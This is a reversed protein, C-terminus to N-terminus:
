KAFEYRLQQITGRWYPSRRDPLLWAVEGSMPVRMGDRQQYDSVRCEWPTMIVARGVTRGRADARVSDILGADNFTFLLTLRLPGDSFTAHASREDVAEWRVGQSPLLATPYWVAEAFYRMLEGHAIDGGGRLEPLSFAGSISPHLIGIGAVYADHVFAAIGPFMAIRADWVFGPRRTVVRQTSTFPKWREGTASLNFEGSHLLSAAAVIPAGDKLVARFYRQVPAPLTELERADFRAPVPEIRAADLRATLDRTLASWRQQGYVLLAIAALAVVALALGTWKLLTM